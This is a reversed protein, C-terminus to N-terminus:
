SRTEAYRQFIRQVAAGQVLDIERRGTRANYLYGYCGKGTGQPMRGANARETKGRTTRELIKEREVEASFARAALIFRGIATDEFKETVIELRPGATQVEDFLVGIHNQNRSLRDVAYAVIVNVQSQRLMQRLRDMGPRDLTFGSATDRIREVVQWGAAGA